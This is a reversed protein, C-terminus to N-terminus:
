VDQEAPNRFPAGLPRDRTARWHHLAWAVSPFALAKWPIDDWSFLAVELSEVGAKIESGQLRARYIMQVQSLHALDYIALLGDLKLECGAEERAERAAAHDTTEGTEMYGAPLTWYGYGPEIARRCLLIKEASAEETVVVSGVVIRPNQYDVFGCTACVRRRRDDGPPTEDRFDIDQLGM